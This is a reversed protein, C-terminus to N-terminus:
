APLSQPPNGSQLGHPIEFQRHPLQSRGEILALVVLSIPGSCSSEQEQQEPGIGHLLRLTQSIAGIEFTPSGSLPGPTRIGGEGGHKMVSARNM